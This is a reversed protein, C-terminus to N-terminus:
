YVSLLGSLLGYLYIRFSFSPAYPDLLWLLMSPLTEFGFLDNDWKYSSISFWFPNAGAADSSISKLVYYYITSFWLGPYYYLPWMLSTKDEFYYVFSISDLCKPDSSLPNSWLIILWYDIVPLSFLFLSFNSLLIM